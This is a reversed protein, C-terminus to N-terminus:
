IAANQRGITESDAADADAGDGRPATRRGAGTLLTRHALAAADGHASTAYHRHLVAATDRRIASTTRRPRFDFTAVWAALASRRCGKKQGTNRHSVSSANLLNWPSM